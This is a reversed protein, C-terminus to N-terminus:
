NCRHPGQEVVNNVVPINKIILYNCLNQVYIFDVLGKNLISTVQNPKFIYQQKFEDEANTNLTTIM